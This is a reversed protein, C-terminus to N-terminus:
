IKILGNFLLYGLYLYRFLIAMVLHLMRVTIDKDTTVILAFSIAAISVILDILYYMYDSKSQPRRKIVPHELKPETSTSARSNFIIDYLLILPLM